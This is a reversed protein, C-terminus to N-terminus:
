RYLARIMSWSTPEVSTAGAMPVHVLNGCGNPSHPDPGYTYSSYANWTGWTSPNPNDFGVRIGGFAPFDAATKHWVAWIKGDSEEIGYVWPEHGPWDPYVWNTYNAPDPDFVEVRFKSIYNISRLNVSYWYHPPHTSDAEQPECRIGIQDYGLPCCAEGIQGHRSVSYEDIQSSPQQCDAVARPMYPDDRLEVCGAADELPVIRLYGVVVVPGAVCETSALTIGTRWDGISLGGPLLSVFEASEFSGPYESVVDTLAFAVGTVGGSVDSLCVYARFPENATPEYYYTPDGSGTQDFSVYALVGPNMGCFGSVSACLILVVSLVSRMREGRRSIGSWM